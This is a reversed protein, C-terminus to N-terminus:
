VRGDVRRHRVTLVALFTQLDVKLDAADVAGVTLQRRRELGQFGPPEDRPSRVPSAPNELPPIRGLEDDTFPSPGGM